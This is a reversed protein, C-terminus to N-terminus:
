GNQSLYVIINGKVLDKAGNTPEFIWINKIDPIKNLTMLYHTLTTMWKMNRGVALILTMVHILKKQEMAEMIDVGMTDVVDEDSM